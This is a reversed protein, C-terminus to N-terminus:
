KSKKFLVSGAGQMYKGAAFGVIAGIVTFMMLKSPNKKKAFYYGAAAGIATGLVPKVGMNSENPMKVMTPSQVADAGLYVETKDMPRIKNIHIIQNNDTIFLRYTFAEGRRLGQILKPQGDVVTGQEIIKGSNTFNKHEANPILIAANEIVTARM